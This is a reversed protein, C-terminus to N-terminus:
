DNRKVFILQNGSEQPEYVNNGVRIGAGFSAEKLYEVYDSGPVKIEAGFFMASPIVGNVPKPVAKMIWHGSHSEPVDPWTIVAPCEPNTEEFLICKGDGNGRLAVNAGGKTPKTSNSFVVYWAGDTQDQYVDEYVPDAFTEASKRIRMYPKGFADVVELFGNTNGGGSLAVNKARIVFCQNSGSVVKQWEYDAMIWMNPRDVVVTDTMPNDIGNATRDAWSKAAEVRNSLAANEVKLRAIENTLQREKFKFYWVAWDRSDVVTRWEGNRYENLQLSSPVKSFDMGAEPEFHCRADAEAKTPPYNTATFNANTAGTSFNYLRTYGLNLQAVQDAAAAGTAANAKVTNYDSPTASAVLSDVEGKTYANGIGYNALTRSGLVSITMNAPVSLSGGGLQITTDDTGRVTTGSGLNIVTGNGATITKGTWDGTLFGWGAVTAQTVVPVEDVMQRAAEITCLYPRAAEFVPDTEDKASGPLGFVYWDETEQVCIRLTRSEIDYVSTHVTQWWTQGGVVEGRHSEKTGQDWRDWISEYNTGLDSYRIPRTNRNYAATWWQSVMSAGNTLSRYRELGEGDEGLNFNTMVVPSGTMPIAEGNEVIYTKEADAILYHFNVGFGDPLYVNAALYEAAHQANTAHDLAWRVAGLGHVAGSTRPWTGGTVNVEIVVGNENVGDVTHGPLCKFYRSHAGSTIADETLNTGVNAVGVSAFRGPGAVMRVIVEAMRDFKWDFNREVLNGTRRASCHGGGQYNERAYYWAADNTYADEFDLAWLYRPLLKAAGDVKRIAGTAAIIEADAHANAASLAAGAAADTYTAADTVANTYTRADQRDVYDENATPAAVAFLHLTFLSFHFIISKRM